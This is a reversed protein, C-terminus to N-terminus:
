FGLAAFEIIYPKPNLTSPKPVFDIDSPSEPKRQQIPPGPMSKLWAVMERTRLPTVRFGLSLGLTGEPPRSGLRSLWHSGLDAERHSSSCTGPGMKPPNLGEPTPKLHASTQTKTQARVTAEQVKRRKVKFSNM